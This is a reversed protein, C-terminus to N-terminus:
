EPERVELEFGIGVERLFDEVRVFFDSTEEPPAHLAVVAIRVEPSPPLKPEKMRGLQGSEVFAIYTNFKAQLLRLHEDIDEWELHDTIVLKVVPSDPRSAVVDITDTESISM